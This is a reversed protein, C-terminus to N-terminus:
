AATSLYRGEAGAEQREASCGSRGTRQQKRIAERRPAARRQSFRRKGIPRLRARRGLRGAFRLLSGRTNQTIGDTKGTTHSAHVGARNAGTALMGGLRGARCGATKSGVSVFIAGRGLWPAM